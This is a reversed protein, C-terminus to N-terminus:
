HLRDSWLLTENLFCCLRRKLTTPIVRWLRISVGVPKTQRCDIQRDTHGDLWGDCGWPPHCRWWIVSVEATIHMPMQCWWFPVRVNFFLNLLYLIKHTNLLYGSVWKLFHALDKLSVQSMCSLFSFILVVWCNWMVTMYIWAQFHECSSFGGLRLLNSHFHSHVCQYRWIVSSRMSQCYLYFRAATQWVALNPCEICCLCPILVCFRVSPSSSPEHCQYSEPHRFPVRRQARVLTSVASTYMPTHGTSMLVPQLVVSPLPYNHPVHLHSSPPVVTPM